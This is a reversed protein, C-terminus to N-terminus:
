LKFRIPLAYRVRIPVGQSKGPQWKPMAKLLRLAEGGFLGNIDKAVRPSSLSGDREVVFDVIVTAQMAKAKAEKPYRLNKEFYAAADFKTNSGFMPKEEAFVYISDTVEPPLKLLTDATVMKSPVVSPEPVIVSQANIAMNNLFLFAISLSLNSLFTHKKM